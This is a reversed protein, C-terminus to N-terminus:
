RHREDRMEREHRRRGAAAEWGTGRPEKQEWGGCRSLKGHSRRHPEVAGINAPDGRVAGSARRSRASSVSNGWRRDLLAERM